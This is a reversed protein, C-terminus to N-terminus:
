RYGRLLSATSEIPYGLGLGTVVWEELTRPNIWFRDQFLNILPTSFYPQLLEPNLNIGQTAYAEVIENIDFLNALTGKRAVLMHWWTYPGNTTPVPDHWVEIDPTPMIDPLSDSTIDAVPKKGDQVATYLYDKDYTWGGCCDLNAWSLLPHSYPPINNFRYTQTTHGDPALVRVKSRRKGDERIITVGKSNKHLLTM